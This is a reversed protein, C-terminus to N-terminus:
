KLIETIIKQINTKLNLETLRLNYILPQTFIKNTDKYESTAVTDMWIIFDANFITRIEETPAVFDCIVYKVGLGESDNALTKMRHAQRIRGQMSFDWDNEHQRITDANYWHSPLKKNLEKALTTKGSGPLGMILIKM